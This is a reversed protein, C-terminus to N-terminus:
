KRGFDAPIEGWAKTHWKLIRTDYTNEALWREARALLEFLKGNRATRRLTTKTRGAKVWGIAVLSDSYLPYRSGTKKLHALGHVIALFEGVNNTGDPFPGQRFAIEQTDAYVGQYEVPGPVGSCAADVCLSQLIPRM